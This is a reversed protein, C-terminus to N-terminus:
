FLALIADLGSVYKAAARASLIFLIAGLFTNLMLVMIVAGVMVAHPHNYLRWMRFSFGGLIRSGDLPPIPLLNFIALAINLVGGLEFFIQVNDYMPQNAPNAFRVWLAFITLCVAALLLNMAPGAGAVVVHGKRRWRYKSPDTPMQGWAFGVLAFIILSMPGMHVMPNMTMHGLRRPTDDGQWLAAWGHALEHLCISFIVWFIQSVLEVKMGADWYNLVWWDNM